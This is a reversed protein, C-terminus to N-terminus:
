RPRQLSRRCCPIVATWLMLIAAAPEPIAAGQGAGAGGGSARVKGFNARWTNYLSQSYLVGVGKRWLVYDSADVVDNLDFDGALNALGAVQTPPGVDIHLHNQHGGSTDYYLATTPNLAAIGDYIDDNSTIIRIVRGLAGARIFASAHNIVIQEEASRVGDGYNWTSSNTYLDIDM